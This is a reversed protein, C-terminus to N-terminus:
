RFLADSISPDIKTFYQGFIYIGGRGGAALIDVFWYRLWKASEGGLLIGRWGADAADPDDNEDAGIDDADQYWVANYIDDEDELGCVALVDAANLYSSSSSTNHGNPTKFDDKM